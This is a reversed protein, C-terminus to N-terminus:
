KVLEVAKTFEEHSEIFEIISNDTKQIFEFIKFNTTIKSFLVNYVKLVGKLQKLQEIPNKSLKYKYPINDNIRVIIGDNKLTNLYSDCKKKSINLKSAIEISTLEQNELIEMIKPIRREKSM